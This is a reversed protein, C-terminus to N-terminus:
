ANPITLRQGIQILDPSDLIDRNAEFIRSYEATSGYFQLAIYGLSDGSVVTYVRTGSVVESQARSAAFARRSLEQAAEAEEPSGEALARQVIDFLMVNADVMGGATNLEAPVEIEGSQAAGELFVELAQASTSANVSELALRNTEDTRVTYLGAVIGETLNRMKNRHAIAVAEDISAQRRAEEAAEAAAALTDVAGPGVTEAAAPAPEASATAEAVAAEVAAAAAAPTPQPSVQPEPGIIEILGANAARTVQPDTAGGGSRDQAFQLTVLSGVVFAVLGSALVPLLVSRRPPPAPFTQTRVTGPTAQDITIM